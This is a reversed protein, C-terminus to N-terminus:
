MEAKMEAISMKREVSAGGMVKGEELPSLLLSADADLEDVTEKKFRSVEMSSPVATSRKLKLVSIKRQTNQTVKASSTMESSGLTKVSVDHDGSTDTKNQEDFTRTQPEQQCDPLPVSRDICTADFQLEDRPPSPSPKTACTPPNSKTQSSTATAAHGSSDFQMRSSAVNDKEASEAISRNSTEM